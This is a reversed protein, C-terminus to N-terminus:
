FRGRGVFGLVLLVVVVIILITIISMAAEETLRKRALDSRGSATTAQVSRASPRRSRRRAAPHEDGTRRTVM